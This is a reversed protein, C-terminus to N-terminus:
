FTCDQRVPKGSKAGVGGGAAGPAPVAGRGQAAGTERDRRLGQSQGQQSRHGHRGLRIDPHDQARPRPRRGSPGATM